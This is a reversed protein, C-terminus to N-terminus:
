WMWLIDYYILYLMWECLQWIRGKWVIRHFLYRGDSGTFVALFLGGDIESPPLIHRTHANMWENAAGGYKGYEVGRQFLNPATNPQKQLSLLSINWLIPQFPLIHCSRGSVRPAPRLRSCFAGLLLTTYQLAPTRDIKTSLFKLALIKSDVNRFWQALFNSPASLFDM